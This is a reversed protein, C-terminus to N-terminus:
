SHAQSAKSEVGRMMGVDRQTLVEDVGVPEGLHADTDRGDHAFEVRQVKPDGSRTPPRVACTSTTAGVGASCRSCSCSISM